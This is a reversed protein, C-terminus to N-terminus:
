KDTPNGTTLGNRQIRELVEYEKQGCIVMHWLSRASARGMMLKKELNMCLQNGFKQIALLEYSISEGRAEQLQEEYKINRFWRHMDVVCMGLTTLCMWLDKM